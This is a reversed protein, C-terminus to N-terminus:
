DWVSREGGEVEREITMRNDGVGRRVNRERGGEVGGRERGETGGKNLFLIVDLLNFSFCSM